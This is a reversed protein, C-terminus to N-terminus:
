PIIYESLRESMTCAVDYGELDWLSETNIFPLKLMFFNFIVGWLTLTQGRSFYQEIMIM